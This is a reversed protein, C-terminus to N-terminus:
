SFLEYSVKHIKQIKGWFAENKIKKKKKTLLGLPKAINQNVRMM